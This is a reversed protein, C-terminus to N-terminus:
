CVEAIEKGNTETVDDVRFFIEEKRDQARIFGYEKNKVTSIVGIERPVGADLMRQIQDSMVKDRKLQKMTVETALFFNSDHMRSLTMTVVDGRDLYHNKPLSSTIIDHSRFVIQNNYKNKLMAKAEADIGTLNNGVDVIGCGVRHRENSRIITGQVNTLLKSIQPILARVNEAAPGKPGQRPVYGVLDNVKINQYYERESFYVQEDSYLSQIFGFGQKISIIIGYM